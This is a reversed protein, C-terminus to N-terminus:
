RLISEFESKLDGIRDSTVQDSAWLWKTWAWTGDSFFLQQTGYFLIKNGIKNLYPQEPEEPTQPPEPDVPVAEPTPEPEVPEPVPTPEPEIPTPEQPPEPEIPPEVPPGPTVPPEVTGFEENWPFGALENVLPTPGAINYLAGYMPMSIGAQALYLLHTGPMSDGRQQCYEFMRRHFDRYKALGQTTYNVQMHGAETFYLPLKWKDLQSYDAKSVVIEEHISLNNGGEYIHIALGDIMNPYQAIANAVNNNWDTRLKAGNEYGIPLIIKVSPLVQKILPIIELAYAAYDAWLIQRVYGQAFPGNVKTFKPLYIENGIEVAEINAGGDIFKQLLFLSNEITDNVNLMYITALGKEQVFDCYDQIQKDNIVRMRKMLQPDAHAEPPLKGEFFTDMGSSGGLPRLHTISEPFNQRITDWKHRAFWLGTNVVFNPKMAEM